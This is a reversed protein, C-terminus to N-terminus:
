SSISIPASGPPGGSRPPWSRNKIRERMDRMARYQRVMTAVEIPRVGAGDAIRRRRAGNLVEPERRERNNMSDYIAQFQILIRLLDQEDLLCQEPILRVISRDLISSMPGLKRIADFEAMFARLTYGEDAGTKPAAIFRKLKDIIRHSWHMQNKVHSGAVLLRM